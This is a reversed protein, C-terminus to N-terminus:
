DIDAISRDLLVASQSEQWNGIGELQLGHITASRTAHIRKHKGLVVSRKAVTRLPRPKTM